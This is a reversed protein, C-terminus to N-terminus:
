LVLRVNPREQAGKCGCYLVNWTTDLVRGGSEFHVIARTHQYPVVYACGILFPNCLGLPEQFDDLMDILIPGLVVALSAPHEKWWGETVGGVVTVTVYACEHPLSACLDNTPYHLLGQGIRVVVKASPPQFAFPFRHTDDFTKQLSVSESLMQLVM